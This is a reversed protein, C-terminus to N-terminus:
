NTYRPNFFSNPTLEKWKIITWTSKESFYQLEIQVIGSDNNVIGSKSFQVVFNRWVTLITDGNSIDNGGATDWTWTTSITDYKSGILNLRSIFSSRSDVTTYGDATTFSFNPHIIDEYDTKAFKKGSLLLIQALNVPDTQTSASPPSVVRSSFM